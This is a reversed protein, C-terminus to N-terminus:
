GTRTPAMGRDMTKDLRQPPASIRHITIDTRPRRTPLSASIRREVARGRTKRRHIGLIRRWRGGSMRLSERAKMRGWRTGRQWGQVQRRTRSRHQAPGAGSWTSARTSGSCYIRDRRSNSALRVTDPMTRINSHQRPSPRVHAQQQKPRWPVTENHKKRLLAEQYAKLRPPSATRSSESPASSAALRIPSAPMQPLDRIPPTDAWRRARDLCDPSVLRPRDIACLGSSQTLTLIRRVCCPTSKGTSLLWDSPRFSMKVRLRLYSLYSQNPRNQAMLM